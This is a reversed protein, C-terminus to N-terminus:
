KLGFKKQLDPSMLHKLEFLWKAGRVYKAVFVNRSNRLVASQHEPGTTDEPFQVANPGVFVFYSEGLKLVPGWGCGRREFKYVPYQDIQRGKLVDLVEIKTEIPIESFGDDPVNRQEIVRGFIIASADGPLNLNPFASYRLRDRSDPGHLSPTASPGHLNPFYLNWNAYTSRQCAHATVSYFFLSVLLAVVFSLAQTKGFLPFNILM